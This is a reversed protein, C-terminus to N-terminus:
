VRAESDDLTKLEDLKIEAIYEDLLECHIEQLNEENICEGDTDM